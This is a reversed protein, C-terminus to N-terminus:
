VDDTACDARSEYIEDENLLKRKAKSRCRASVRTAAQLPEIVKSTCKKVTSRFPKKKETNSGQIIFLFM